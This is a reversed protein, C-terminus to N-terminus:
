PITRLDTQARWAPLWVHESWWDIYPAILAELERRAETVVAPSDSALRRLLHAPIVPCTM